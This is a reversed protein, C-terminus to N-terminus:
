LSKVHRIVFDAFTGLDGLSESRELRFVPVNAIVRSVNQFHTAGTQGMFAQNGYRACFTNSVIQKFTEQQVLQHVALESGFELVYIAALPAPASAFGSVVTKVRKDYDAMLKPLTEADEFLATKASDPWLKFQPFGPHALVPQGDKGDLALLDDTLLPCGRVYLSAATTSKGKGKWGIFAVAKGGVVVASAHLVLYGRQQLITAFGPGLIGMRLAREEVGPVPQVVLEIGKRMIFSGANEWFMHLENENASVCRNVQTSFTGTKSAQELRVMVDPSEESVTLEPLRVESEIGLNFARYRYAAKKNTM